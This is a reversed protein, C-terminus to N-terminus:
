TAPSHSHRSSHHPDDRDKLLKEMKDLRETLKPIESELHALIREMVKVSDSQTTTLTQHVRQEEANASRFADAVVTGNEVSESLVNLLKEQQGGQADLRKLVFNLLPKTVFYIILGGIGLEVCRSFIQLASPEDSNPGIFIPVVSQYIYASFAALPAIITGLAVSMLSSTYSM